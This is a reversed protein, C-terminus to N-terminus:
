RVAPTGAPADALLVETDSTRPSSVLTTTSQQSYVQPITAVDEESCLFFLTESKDYHKQLTDTPYWIQLHFPCESYKQLIKHKNWWFLALRIDIAKFM